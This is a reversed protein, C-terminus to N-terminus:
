IDFDEGIMNKLFDTEINNYIDDERKDMFNLTVKEEFLEKIALM